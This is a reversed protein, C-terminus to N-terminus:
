DDRKGHHVDFELTDSFKSFGAVAMARLGNASLEPFTADIKVRTKPKSLIDLVFAVPAGESRGKGDFHLLKAEGPDVHGAVERFKLVGTPLGKEFTGQYGDFRLGVKGDSAIHVRMIGELETMRLSPLSGGGIILTCGSTIMSRLDVERGDKKKAPDDDGEDKKKKSAFTREMNIKGQEDETVHVRCGDIDARSFGYPGSWLQSPAFDVVTETVEIAPKGGPDRFTVGRARVRHLSLEEISQIEFTGAMGGGIAAVVRDRVFARGAESELWQLGAICLLGVVLSIGILFLLLRRM